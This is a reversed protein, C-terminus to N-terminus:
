SRVSGRRRRGTIICAISGLGLLLLLLTPGADPVRSAEYGYLSIHSIQQPSPRPNKGKPSNFIVDNAVELTATEGPNWDKIEWVVYENSAKLALYLVSPPTYNPKLTLTASLGDAAYSVLFPSDPDSSGEREAKQLLITDHYSKPTNPSGSDVIPAMSNVKFTVAGADPRLCLLAVCTCVAFRISLKM